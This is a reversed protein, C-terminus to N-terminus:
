NGIEAQYGGNSQEVTILTTRQEQVVVNTLTIPPNTDIVITYAGTPLQPGSEGLRGTSVVNGELDYVTYSFPAALNLAQRLQDSNDADYYVGGTSQAIEVLQDRATLNRSIDFGVVHIKLDYGLGILDRAAQVPDGGCTEMGDSILLILQPDTISTLDAQTQELVYAIPTAGRPEIARIDAELSSRQIPGVPAVLESHGCGGFLRVGVVAGDPLNELLDIIVDKAVDIKVEGDIVELMSSSTDLIILYTSPTRDFAFALDGVPLLELSGFAEGTIVVEARGMAGVADISPGPCNSHDEDAPVDSLRVFRFVDDANVYPAIDIAGPYGVIEGVFIFSFGDSSIEVRAPNQNTNYIFLDNGPVDVLVNDVFELVLYGRNDIVSLRFGLSVANTDCGSCGECGDCYADPPGLAEEPDDFADRVCSAALYDVVRDAFAADGHPFTIGFYTAPESQLGPNVMVVFCVILLCFGIRRFGLRAKM